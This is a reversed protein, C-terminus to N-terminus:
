ERWVCQVANVLDGASVGMLRIAKCELGENPSGQEIELATIEGEEGADDVTADDELILLNHSRAACQYLPHFCEGCRFCM